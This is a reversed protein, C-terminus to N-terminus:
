NEVAADSVASRYINFPSITRRRAMKIEITKKAPAL